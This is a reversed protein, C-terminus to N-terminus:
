LHLAQLCFIVSEYFSERPKWKLPCFVSNFKHYIGDSNVLTCNCSWIKLKENKSIVDEASVVIGSMPLSDSCFDQAYVSLISSDLNEGWLYATSSPYSKKISKWAYSVENRYLQHKPIILNYGLSFLVQFLELLKNFQQSRGSHLILFVPTNLSFKNESLNIKSNSAIVRWAPIHEKEDLFFPIANSVGNETLDPLSNHNYGLFIFHAIFAVFLLIVLGLLAQNFYKSVFLNHVANKKSSNIKASSFFINAIQKLFSKFLQISTYYTVKICCIIQCSNSWVNDAFSNHQFRSNIYNKSISHFYLCSKSIINQLNVSITNYIQIMTSIFLKFFIYQWKYFAYFHPTYTNCVNKYRNLYWERRRQRFYSRQVHNFSHDFDIDCNEKLSENGYTMYGSSKHSSDSNLKETKNISFSSIKTPSIDHFVYDELSNEECKNKTKFNLAQFYGYNYDVSAINSQISLKKIRNSCNFKSHLPTSTFVTKDENGDVLNSFDESIKNTQTISFTEVSKQVLLNKFEDNYTKVHKHSLEKFDRINKHSIRQDSFSQKKQHDLFSLSVKSQSDKHFNCLLFDPKSDVETYVSTDNYDKGDRLKM